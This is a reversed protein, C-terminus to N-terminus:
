NEEGSGSGSIFGLVALGERLAQRTEEDIAMRDGATDQSYCVGRGQVEKAPYDQPLGLM